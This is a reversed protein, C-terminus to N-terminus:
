FIDINIYGIAALSKEEEKEVRKDEKTKDEIRKRSRIKKEDENKKKLIELNEKELLLKDLEEKKLQIQIEEEKQEMQKISLATLRTTEEHQENVEVIPKEVHNDEANLIQIGPEKEILINKDMNKQEKEVLVATAKVSGEGPGLTEVEAAGEVAAEDMNKQRLNEKDVADEDMLVISSSMFEDMIKEQADRYELDVSPSTSLEEQANTGVLKEEEIEEDEFIVNEEQIGTPQQQAKAFLLTKDEEEKALQRESNERMAKQEEIEKTSEKEELELALLRIEEEEALYVAIAKEEDDKELQDQKRRTEETIAKDDKELQDQKRRTEKINEETIKFFVNTFTKIDPHAALIEAPISDCEVLTEVAEWQGVFEYNDNNNIFCQPYKARL